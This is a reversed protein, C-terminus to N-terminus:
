KGLRCFRIGGTLDQPFRKATRSQRASSSELSEYTILVRTALPKLSKEIARTISTM